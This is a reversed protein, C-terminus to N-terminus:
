RRVVEVLVRRGIEEATMNRSILIQKGDIRVSIDNAKHAQLKQRNLYLALAASGVAVTASLGTVVMGFIEFTGLEAM